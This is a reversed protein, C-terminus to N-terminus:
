DILAKMKLAYYLERRSKVNAKEYIKNIRKTLTAENIDLYFAIEQKTGKMSGAWAVATELEVTTLTFEHIHAYKSLLKLLEPVLRGADMCAVVWQRNLDKIVSQATLAPMGAPNFAKERRMADAMRRVADVALVIPEDDIFLEEDIGTATTTPTTEPKQVTM